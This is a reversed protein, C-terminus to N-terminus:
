KSAWCAYAFIHVYIYINMYIYICLELRTFSIPVHLPSNSFLCVLAACVTFNLNSRWYSRDGKEWVWGGYVKGYQGGIAKGMGGVQIM